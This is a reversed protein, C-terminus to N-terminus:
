TRQGRPLTGWHVGDALEIRSLSNVGLLSRFFLSLRWNRAQIRSIVPLVRVRFQSATGIKGWGALVDSQGIKSGCRAFTPRWPGWVAKSM